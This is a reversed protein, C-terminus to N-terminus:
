DVARWCHPRRASQSGCAPGLNGYAGGVGCNQNDSGVACNMTSNGAMWAWENTSPDYQWFENLYGSNGKSDYGQGGFLRLKNDPGTWTSGNWRTGPINGPAPTGMTGYVSPQVWLSSFDSSGDMWAWEVPSPEFQWLNNPLGNVDNADYGWGGFLWTHDNHDHWVDELMLGGPHNSSSFTGETGFIGGLGYGTGPVTSGGGQWTWQNTSPDFEWLDNLVGFQGISDFGFGGFLWLHGNADAWAAAYYRSGPTNGAAATGQTGYVGSQGCSPNSQIVACPPSNSGSMWTWENAKPDYKWLDNLSYLADAEPLFGGFLWLNGNTDTWTQAWVRSGPFNTPSPVGLTGFVSTQYGTAGVTNSGGM